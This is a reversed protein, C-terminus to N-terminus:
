AGKDLGLDLVEVIAARKEEVVRLNEGELEAIQKNLADRQEKLKATSDTIIKKKMNLQDLLSIPDEM